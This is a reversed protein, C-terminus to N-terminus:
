HWVEGHLSCPLSLQKLSPSISDHLTVEPESDRHAKRQEDGDDGNEGRKEDHLLLLHRDHLPQALEVADRVGAEMQADREDVLDRFAELQTDLLEVHLDLGLGLVVHEHNERDRHLVHHLGGLDVVRVVLQLIRLLLDLGEDEVDHAPLHGVDLEVREEHLLVLEGDGDLRLEGLGHVVEAVLDDLREHGVDLRLRADLSRHVVDVGRLAVTRRGRLDGFRIADRHDGLSLGLGLGLLELALTDGILALREDIPETLGDLVELGANWAGRCLVDHVEHHDRLEEVRESGDAGVGVGVRDEDRMRRAEHTVQHTLQAARQERRALGIACDVRTLARRRERGAMVVAGVAM